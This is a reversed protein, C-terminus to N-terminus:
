VKPAVYSKLGYVVKEEAAKVGHSKGAGLVNVKRPTRLIPGGGMIGKFFIVEGDRMAAAIVELVETVISKCLGKEVPKSMFVRDILLKKTLRNMRIEEFRERFNELLKRTELLLADTDFNWKKKLARRGVLPV